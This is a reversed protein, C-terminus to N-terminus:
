KGGNIFKDLIQSVDARTYLPEKGYLVSVRQLVLRVFQSAQLDTVDLVKKTTERAIEFLEKETEDTLGNEDHFRIVLEEYYVKAIADLRKVFDNVLIKDSNTLATM